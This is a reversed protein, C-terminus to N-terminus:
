TSSGAISSTNLADPEPVPHVHVPLPPMLPTCQVCGPGILAPSASGGIVIVPIRVVSSQWCTKLVALTPATAPSPAVLLLTSEIEGIWHMLLMPEDIDDDDMDDICADADAEIDASIDLAIELTLAILELETNLLEDDEDDDETDALEDTLSSIDDDALLEIDLLTAASGEADSEADADADTDADSEAAADDNSATDDSECDPEAESETESETASESEPEFLSDAEIDDDNASPDELEEDTNLLEEDDDDADTDALEDTLSSTDDDALLEIDLAPPV